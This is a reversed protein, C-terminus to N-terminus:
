KSWKKGIQWKLLQRKRKKRRAMELIAKPKQKKYNDYNFGKVGYFQYELWRKLDEQTAGKILNSESIIILFRIFRSAMIKPITHQRIKSTCEEGNFHFSNDIFLHDNKSIDKVKVEKQFGTIFEAKSQLITFKIYYFRIKEELFSLFSYLASTKSGDDWDTMVVISGDKRYTYTYIVENSVFDEKDYYKTKANYTLFYYETCIGRQQKNEERIRLLQDVQKQSMVTFLLYWYEIFNNNILSGLSDYLWSFFVTEFEHFPHDLDNVVGNENWREWNTISWIDINFFFDEISRSECIAKDLLKLLNEIDHFYRDDSKLKSKLEFALSNKCNKAENFFDSENRIKQKRTIKDM